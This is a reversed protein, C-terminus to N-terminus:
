AQHLSTYMQVLQQKGFRCGLNHEAIKTVPGDVNGHSAAHLPAISM